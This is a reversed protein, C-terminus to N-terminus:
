VSAAVVLPSEDLSQIEISVRVMQECISDSMMWSAIDEFSQMEGDPMLQAKCLIAAVQCIRPSMKVPHSGVPALMLPKEYGIQGPQGKGYVYKIAMEDLFDQVAISEMQGIKRFTMQFSVQPKNATVTHLQGPLVNGDDDKLIGPCEPSGLGKEPTEVDFAVGCSCTFQSTTWNSFERILRTLPKLQLSQPSPKM